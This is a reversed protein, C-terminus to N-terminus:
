LTTVDWMTKNARRFVLMEFNAPLLSGRQPTLVWKCELFLRECSNSTPPVMAALAVYAVREGKRRKTGGGQRIIEAAYDQERGAREDEAARRPMEAQSRELRNLATAESTSLSEGAAFKALGHGFAPSHVIKSTPKLYEGRVRRSVSCDSACVTSSVCIVFCTGLQKHEGSTHFDDEVAEVLRIHSRLDMYRELMEFTSSRRGAFRGILRRAEYYYAVIFQIMDVTKNYVALVNRFLEIHADADQSGDDMPSLALLTRQLRGGVVDLGGRLSRLGSSTCPETAFLIGMEDSIVIGLKGAVTFMDAKLAKSNIPRWESM